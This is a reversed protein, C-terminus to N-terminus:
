GVKSGPNTDDLNWDDDMSADSSVPTITAAHRSAKTVEPKDGFGIPRKISSPQESPVMKFEESGHSSGDTGEDEYGNEEADMGTTLKRYRVTAMLTRGVSLLIGILIIGGIVAFVRIPMEFRQPAAGSFQLSSLATWATMLVPSDTGKDFFEALDTYTAIFHKTDSSAVVHIQMLNFGDLNMGTYYLIAKTGNTLEVLEHNRIHFDTVNTMSKGFVKTLEAEFQVATTEDIAVPTNRVMVQISKQYTQGKEKPAQLVLSLNPLDTRYEWGKPPTVSFGRDNLTVPSGDSAIFGAEASALSGLAVLIWAFSNMGIRVNDGM